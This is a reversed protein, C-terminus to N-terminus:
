DFEDYEEGTVFTPLKGARVMNSALEIKQLADSCIKQLQEIEDRDMSVSLSKRGEEDFFKLRMRSCVIGGVIKDRNVSFVPRIDTLINVSSLIHEFDAALELAKATIVINDLSLFKEIIPAIRDWKKYTGEPWKQNKIGLSLAGVAESATTNSYDIYSRLWVLQQVLARVVGSALPQELSTRLAKPSIVPEKSAALRLYADELYEEPQECITLLDRESQTNIQLPTLPM